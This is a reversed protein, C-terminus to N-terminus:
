GHPDLCENDRNQQEKRAEIEGERLGFVAVCRCGFVRGPRAGDDAPHDHVCHQGAFREKVDRSFVTEPKRFQLGEM